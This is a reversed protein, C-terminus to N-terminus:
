EHDIKEFGALEKRCGAIKVLRIREPPAMPRHFPTHSRCPFAGVQRFWRAHFTPNEFIEHLISAPSRKPCSIRHIKTSINANTKRPLPLASFIKFKRKEVRAACRFNRILM